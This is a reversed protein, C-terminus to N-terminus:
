DYDGEPRWFRKWDAWPPCAMRMLDSWIELRVGHSHHRKEDDHHLKLRRQCWRWMM